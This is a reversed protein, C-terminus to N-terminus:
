LAEDLGSPTVSNLNASSGLSCRGLVVYGKSGDNRITVKAPQAPDFKFKGLPIWGFLPDGSNEDVHVSKRGEADEVEVLVDKARNGGATSSLYVAYTGARKLSATYAAFGKGKHLSLDHFFFEGYFPLQSMSRELFPSHVVGKADESDIQQDGAVGAGVPVIKAVPNSQHNADAVVLTVLTSKDMTFGHTPAEEESEVPQGSGDFNWKWTTAKSAGAVAKARSHVPEGPKPQKPDWDFDAMPLLPPDLIAGHSKLHAQLQDIPVNQVTTGDAVALAAARGAAEGLMMFIPEMRPSCWAVHTTSMCVPVLLNVCQEPKPTLCRYPIAYPQVPVYITGGERFKGDADRVEFTAHCDIPRHGLCVSDPKTRDGQQDSQKLIYAGDLRRAERIYMERPFNGNNAYEDRCLAYERAVKQIAPPVQPDNQIFYIWGLSYQRQQAQIKARTDADGDPYGWNTGPQDAINADIKNNPLGWYSPFIQGPAPDAQMRQLLAEYNKPDYGAPQPVPVQDAPDRTMTVRFNYAQIAPSAKDPACSEGFESKAETGVRYSM